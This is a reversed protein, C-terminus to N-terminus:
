ENILKKKKTMAAQNQKWPLERKETEMTVAYRKNRILTLAITQVWPLPVDTKCGETEMSVIRQPQRHGHYCGIQQRKGGTEMTVPSLVLKQTKKASDYSKQRETDM